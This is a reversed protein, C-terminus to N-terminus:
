SRIKAGSRKEVESIILNSINDLDNEKLAKDSSQINVNLAISKKDSPINEGEYVDFVNVSKILNKDVSSIISDRICM